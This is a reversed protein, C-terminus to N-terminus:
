EAETEPAEAAPAEAPTEAPADLLAIKKQIDEIDAKIQQSRREIEKVLSNGEKSKINLFGLNNEYIQLEGRKNELARLLRDRERGLGKDDGKLNNIREKYNNIRNSRDRFDFKKRLETITARFDEYLKDKVRFPVHGIEQWKDQAARIAKVVDDRTAGSEPTIASLEEILARKAAYNDNEEKKQGSQAKKRADFFANCAAMFRSWVADSQKRPVTGITRWEAQLKRVEEATRRFDTSDKLQEAKECLAIKKELNANLEEKTRTYYAAKEAFFEDCTKRFRAFLANNLKHSAFGITRWRDQMDKIAATAKEWENFTHLSSRDIAEIEECIKTKADENAKELEKRAEFYEQHRKNVDTSLAKFENWIDERYEKAVPGTARWTDHLIQLKKFAAIVDPETGLARAQEILDQKIELNKKFDLDRLEKNMKLCDFIQEIVLQYNKWTDTVATQPIDSINKFEDQLRRVEPIHLNINDIDSAINKLSEIIENKRALNDMRRQEEKELYQARLTHFAAILDKFKTEEPDIASSFTADTGENEEAFKQVEADLEKKRIAYFAQKIANVEKNRDAAATDVIETLTALLDSKSMEFYKRTGSEEADDTEEEADLDDCSDTPTASAPEQADTTQPADTADCADTAAQAETSDKPSNTEEVVPATTEAAPTTTIADNTQTGPTAGEEQFSTAPDLENMNM